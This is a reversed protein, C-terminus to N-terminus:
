FLLFFPMTLNKSKPKQNTNKLMKFSISILNKYSFNCRKLTISASDTEAGDAAKLNKELSIILKYVLFFNEL